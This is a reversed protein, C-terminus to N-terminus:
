KSPQRVSFYKSGGLRGWFNSAAIPVYKFCIPNGSFNSLLLDAVTSADIFAALLNLASNLNSEVCRGLRLVM